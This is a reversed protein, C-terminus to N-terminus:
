DAGRCVSCRAKGCFEMGHRRLWDLHYEVARKRRAQREAETLEALGIGGVSPIKRMEIPRRHLQPHLESLWMANEISGILEKRRGCVQMPTLLGIYSGM